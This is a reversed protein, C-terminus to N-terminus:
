PADKDDYSENIRGVRLQEVLELLETDDDAYARRRLAVALADAVLSAVAQSILPRARRAFEISTDRDHHQWVASVFVDALVTGQDRTRAHLERVTDLAQRLPAGADILDAVLTLLADSRVLWRDDGGRHVLGAAEAAAFADDSDLAPIRRVVQARTFASPAEDFPGDGVLEALSRGRAWAELLDKIGALSYGRAQLRGILELRRQHDGGYMGVRGVRTPAPLLGLTKYERITRTPVGTRTAFEDIGWQSSSM